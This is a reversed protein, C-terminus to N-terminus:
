GDLRCGYGGRLAEAAGSSPTRRSGWCDRRQPSTRLVRRRPDPTRYYSPLGTSTGVAVATDNRATSYFGPVCSCHSVSAAEAPDELGVGDDDIAQALRWTHAPCRDCRQQGSFEQYSYLDCTSCEPANFVASYSGPPCPECGAGSRYEGPKCVSFGCAAGMWGAACACAGTATCNGRGSCAGGDTGLPCTQCTGWPPRRKRLVRGRRVDEDGRARRLEDMADAPDPPARRGGKAM